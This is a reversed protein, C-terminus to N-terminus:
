FCDAIRLCCDQLVASVEVQGVGVIARAHLLLEDLQGTGVGASNGSWGNLREDSAEAMRITTLYGLGLAIESTHDVARWLPTIGPVITRQGSNCRAVAVTRGVVQATV